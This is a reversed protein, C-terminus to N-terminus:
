FSPSTPLSCGYASSEARFRDLLPHHQRYAPHRFKMTLIHMLCQRVESHVPRYTQIQRFAIGRGARPTRPHTFITTIFTWMGNCAALDNNHCSVPRSSAGLLNWLYSQRFTSLRSRLPLQSGTFRQAPFSIKDTYGCKIETLTPAYYRYLPSLLGHLSLGLDSCSKM